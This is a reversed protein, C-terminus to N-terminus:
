NLPLLTSPNSVRVLYKGGIYRISIEEITGAAIELSNATCVWDTGNPLSHVIMRASSNKISIICEFGEAPTGSFSIADLILNSTYERYISYKNTPLNALSTAKYVDTPVVANNLRVKDASSMLGNASTTAVGYTTDQGPIGLATIDAKTVGTVASVHGTADVTMKNFGATRATYAPHTYNNANAAIGNLKTKDAASMLGNASTTAVSTDPIGLTTIDQKAVATVGSVHGTGDVTVKNFGAARATYTPHTYNNANDAIKDLKTKDTSSMLGNATQTAVTYTTDQAPIGLDIIDKKIVKEVTQIHGVSDVAVKYLNLSDKNEGKTHETFQQDHRTLRDDQEKDKKEIREIDQDLGDLRNDQQKDKENINKIDTDHGTLRGDQEQDKTKIQGITTDHNNLRTDQEADKLDIQTIEEAHNNM